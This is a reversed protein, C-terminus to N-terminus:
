FKLCFYLLGYCILWTCSSAIHIIDFNLITPIYLDYIKKCNAYMVDDPCNFSGESSANNCTYGKYTCICTSSFFSQPSTISNSTASIWLDSSGTDLVVVAKKGGM